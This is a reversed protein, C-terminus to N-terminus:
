SALLAGLGGAGLAGGGAVMAKQKAPMKKWSKYAKGLMKNGKTGILSKKAARAKLLKRLLLATGGAGALAAAGGMLKGKNAKAGEILEPAKKLGKRKLQEIAVRARMMRSLALKEKGQQARLLNELNSM